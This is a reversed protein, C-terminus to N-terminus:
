MTLERIFIRALSVCEKELVSDATTKLQRIMRVKSLDKMIGALEAITCEGAHSM